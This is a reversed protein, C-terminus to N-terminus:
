DNQFETDSYILIFRTGWGTFSPPESKEIDVSMLDGIFGTYRARVIPSRDVMLVSQCIINGEVSLSLFQRGGLQRIAITCSQTALDVIIKQSPVAKLPITYITM